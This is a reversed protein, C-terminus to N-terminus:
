AFHSQIMLTRSVRLRKEKEKKFEAYKVKMKM